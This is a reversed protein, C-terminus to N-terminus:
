SKNIATFLWIILRLASNFFNLHCVLESNFTVFTCLCKKWKMSEKKRRTSIEPQYSCIIKLESKNDGKAKFTSVYSTVNTKKKADTNSWSWKMKHWFLINQMLSAYIRGLNFVSQSTSVILTIKQQSLSICWQPPPFTIHGIPCATTKTADAM